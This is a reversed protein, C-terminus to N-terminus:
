IRPIVAAIAKRLRDSGFAAKALVAEAPLGEILTEVRPAVGKQGATFIFREPCAVGRVIMHTKACGM